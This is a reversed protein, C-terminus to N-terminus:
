SETNDPDESSDFIGEEIVADLIDDYNDNTIENEKLACIIYLSKKYCKFFYDLCYLMMRDKFTM